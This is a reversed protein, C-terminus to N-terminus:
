GEVALARTPCQRVADDVEARRDEGPSDDLLRAHGEDVVEFLDEAIGECIGHGACRDLDISIKM